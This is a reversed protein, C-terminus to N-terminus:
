HLVAPSALVAGPHIVLLSGIDVAGEHLLMVSEDRVEHGCTTVASAKRGAAMAKM